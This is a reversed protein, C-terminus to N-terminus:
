VRDEEVQAVFVLSPLRCEELRVVFHSHRSALECRRSVVYWEEVHGRPHPPSRAVNEDERMACVCPTMRVRQVLARGYISSLLHNNAGVNDKATARLLLRPGLPAVFRCTLLAATTCFRNRGDIGACCLVHIINLADHSRGKPLDARPGGIVRHFHPPRARPPPPPAKKNLM